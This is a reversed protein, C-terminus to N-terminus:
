MPPLGSYYPPNNVAKVLNSSTNLAAPALTASSSWYDSSFPVIEYQEIMNSIQTTGSCSPPTGSGTCYQTYPSINSAGILQSGTGPTTYNFEDAVEWPYTGALGTVETSILPTPPTTEVFGPFVMLAVENLPNAYNGNSDSGSCPTTYCPTINQLFTQAGQMACWIKSQSGCNSADGDASQMSATTDLIIVVNYPGGNLLRGSATSTATLTISPNAGLVSSFYNLFSLPVKASQAVKVANYLPPSTSSSCPLGMTSLTTSCLFLPDTPMGSTVPFSVGSFDSYINNGGPLSSFLKADAIAATTVSNPLAQGAALAAADTSAQLQRYNVYIKGLYAVVALMVMVFILWVIMMPLAQGREGKRGLGSFRDRKRTM